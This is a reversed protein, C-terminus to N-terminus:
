NLKCDIKFHFGFAGGVYGDYLSIVNLRNSQSKYLTFTM